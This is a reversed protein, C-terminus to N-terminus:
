NKRLYHVTGNSSSSIEWVMNMEETMLSVISLGIGAGKKESVHEMGQGKDRIFLYVFDDREVFGVGVYQGSSAYRIVNQLLNDFICRLWLLDVKWNLTQDPLNVDVQFGAKELIPYWEAITHRLEEVVDINKVKLPYKGSSLLTYTLLNDLLKGLNNLKNIIIEMSEASKPSSPNSQVTYAHQLIVTLPTRLDHSVNAIWKKRLNEEERERERSSKLQNVMKNFAAELQGIEDGNNLSVENPIGNNGTHSMAIKLQVLRKRIGLFFLLSIVVLSVGAILTIINLFFNETGYALTTYSKPIQFVIFGKRDDDGISSILTYIGQQKKVDIYHILNSPTWHAPMDTVQGNIIHTKGAQDVWFLKAKLYNKQIKHLKANIASDNATHLQRATQEWMQELDEIDYISGKTVMFDPSYYLAPLIPWMLLSALIILLYKTVLSKRIKM